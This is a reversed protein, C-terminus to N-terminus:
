KEESEKARKYLETIMGKIMIGTDDNREALYGLLFLYIQYTTLEENMKEKEGGFLEALEDVTMHSDMNDRKSIHDEPVSTMLEYLVIHDGNKRIRIDKLADLANECYKIKKEIDMNKDDRKCKNSITGEM